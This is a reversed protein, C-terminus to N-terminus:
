SAAVPPSFRDMDSIGTWVRVKCGLPSLSVIQMLFIQGNSM